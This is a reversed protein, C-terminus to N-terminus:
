NKVSQSALLAAGCSKHKSNAPLLWKPRLLYGMQKSTRQAKAIQIHLTYIASSALLCIIRCLDRYHPISARPVPSRTKIGTSQKERTPTKRPWPSSIAMYPCQKEPRLADKRVSTLVHHIHSSSKANKPFVQSHVMSGTAIV